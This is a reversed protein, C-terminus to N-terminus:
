TKARSKNKTNVNKTKHVTQDKRQRYEPAIKRPSKEYQYGANRYSAM